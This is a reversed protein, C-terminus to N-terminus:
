RTSPAVRGVVGAVATLLGGLLALAAGLSPLMRSRSREFGDMAAAPDARALVIVAWLIASLAVMSGAVAFLTAQRRSGSRGNVFRFTADAVVLAALAVIGFLLMPVQSWARIPIEAHDGFIVTTRTAWPLLASVLTALAGAGAGLTAVSM